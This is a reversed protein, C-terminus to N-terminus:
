LSSIWQANVVARDSLEPMISSGGTPVEVSCDSKKISPMSSIRFSSLSMLDNTVKLPVIWFFLEPDLHLTSVLDPFSITIEKSWKCKKSLGSM